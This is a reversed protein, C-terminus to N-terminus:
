NLSHKKNQRDIVDNGQHYKLEGIGTKQESKRKMAYVFQIHEKVLVCIPLM